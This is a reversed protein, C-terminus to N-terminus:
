FTIQDNESLRDKGECVVTQGVTLGATVVLDSGSFAGTQVKQKHVRRSLTDVVFIYTDGNSDKGVSQYPVLVCSAGKSRAIAVDCVMGPKLEHQSNHVLIKAEYTRSIADAVPSITAIQGTVTKEGLASVTITAKQGKKLQNLENEPVSIVIYVDNIEVLKIPAGTITLASMGPEINREGVIGDSPAKLNCKDLSERSMALSSQAQELNTQMEVWKIEPLSGSDYVKKLRDYADKAQQYKANAIDYMNQASAKDVTALLQGKSVVDGAEVLVSLVTGTTQFTLPITRSAEITGSYRMDSQEGSLKVQSVTVAKGTANMEKSSQKGGCSLMAALVIVTFVKKKM